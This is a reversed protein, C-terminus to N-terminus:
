SHFLRWRFDPLSCLLSYFQSPWLVLNVISSLVRCILILICTHCLISKTVTSVLNVVFYVAFQFLIHLPLLDLLSVAASDAFVSLNLDHNLVRSRRRESSPWMLGTLQLLSLYRLSVKTLTITVVGLPQSANDQVTWWPDVGARARRSGSLNYFLHAKGTVTWTDPGGPPCNWEVRRM